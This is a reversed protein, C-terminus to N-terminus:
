KMVLRLRQRSSLASNRGRAEIGVADGRQPEAPRRELDDVVPSAASDVM